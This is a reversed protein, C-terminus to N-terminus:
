LLSLQDLFNFPESDVKLNDKMPKGKKMYVRAVQKIDIRIIKKFVVFVM